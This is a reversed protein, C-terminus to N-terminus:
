SFVDTLQRSATSSRGNNDFGLCLGLGLGFGFGLWAHRVIDVVVDDDNDVAVAIDPLSSM